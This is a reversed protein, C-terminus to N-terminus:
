RDPTSLSRIVRVEQGDEIDRHGEVVVRDGEQLGDTVEVMWGEMIGLEVLQKRVTGKDELYIFQEGKRTIVSYLPIALAHPREEKIIDARVFMGPFISFDQNALALELRYVHANSEPAPSLYHKKGTLQRNGLAQVTLTIEDLDRVAAVDSEPIGVVAKVQNMQLIEAVPDAEALLLGTKADLRRIFGSMPAKITCRSLKLQADDLAAQATQLQAKSNELEAQPAIGKSHMTKIRKYEASALTWTAQASQLGIRYDAEEIRALVTGEEVRDGETVLVEEVMGGVKALLELRQWPEITGPLNIRDRLPIQQIELVVVNLPQKQEVEAKAKEAALRKGKDKIAFFGLVTFLILILLFFRPLNKWILYVIKARTTKPSYDAKM